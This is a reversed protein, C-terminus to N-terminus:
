KASKPAKEKMLKLLDRSSIARHKMLVHRKKIIVPLMPLCKIRGKIVARFAAQNRHRALNGLLLAETFLMRPAIRFLIGLPLNKVLVLGNNRYTM